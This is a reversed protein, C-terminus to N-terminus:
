QYVSEDLGLENTTRKIFCYYDVTQTAIASAALALINGGPTM